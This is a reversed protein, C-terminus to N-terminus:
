GADRAVSADLGGSQLWEDYRSEMAWWERLKEHNNVLDARSAIGLQTRVAATTDVENGMMDGPVYSVGLLYRQFPEDKCRIACRIRAAEGPSRAPKAREPPAILRVIAVRIDSTPTPISLRKFALHGLESPMEITLSMAERAAVTAVKEFTGHLPGDPSPSRVRTFGVHISEGLQPSGLVELARLAEEIPVDMTLVAVGRSPASRFARFRAVVVDASSPLPGEGGEEAREADGAM